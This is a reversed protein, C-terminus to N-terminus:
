RITDNMGAEGEVVRCIASQSLVQTVELTGVKEIVRDLVQGNADTIEDVVRHVEFRQGVTVGASEGRNIYVINRGEGVFVIGEGTEELMLELLPPDVRLNDVPIPGM